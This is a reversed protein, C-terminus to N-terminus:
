DQVNQQFDNDMNLLDTNEQPQNYTQMNPNNQIALQHANPNQQSTLQLQSQMSNTNTDDPLEDLEDLENQM